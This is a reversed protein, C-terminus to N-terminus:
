IIKKQTVHMSIYKEHQLKCNVRPPSSAQPHAEVSICTCVYTYLSVPYDDVEDRNNPSFLQYSHGHLKTSHNCIHNNRWLFMLDKSSIQFTTFDIYVGDERQLSHQGGVLQSKWSYHHLSKEKNDSLWFGGAASSLSLSVIGRGWVSASTWQILAAYPSHTLISLNTEVQICVSALHLWAFPLHRWVSLCPPTPCCSELSLNEQVQQFGLYWSRTLGDVDSFGGHLCVTSPHKFTKSAPSM